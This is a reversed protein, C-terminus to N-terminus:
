GSQLRQGLQLESLLTQLTNQELQTDEEVTDEDAHRETHRNAVLKDDQENGDGEM